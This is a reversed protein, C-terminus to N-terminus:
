WEQILDAYKCTAIDGGGATAISLRVEFVGPSTAWTGLAIAATLDVSVIAPSLSNSQIQSGTVVGPTGTLVGNVDYLDVTAEKGAAANTTELIARFTLTSNLQGVNNIPAAIRGAGIVTPAGTTDTFKGNVFEFKERRVSYLNKVLGTLSAHNFYAGQDVLNVNLTSNTNNVFVPAPTFGSTPGVQANDFMFVNNTLEATTEMVAQDGSSSLASSNDRMDLFIGAGNILPSSPGAQGSLTAGTLKARDRLSLIAGGTWSFVPSSSNSWIEIGSELATANQFVAGDAMLVVVSVDVRGRLITNYELNHTGSPIDCRTNPDSTPDFEIIRPGDVAALATMLLSWSTYVNGSATGGPRFVFTYPQGSGSGAAQPSWKSGNWTAVDNTNAGDQALQKLKIM